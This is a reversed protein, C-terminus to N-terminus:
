ETVMETNEDAIQEYVADPTETYESEDVAPEDKGVYICKNEEDITVLSTPIYETKTLQKGDKDYKDIKNVVKRVLDETTYGGTLAKIGAEHGQIEANLQNIEEEMKHIKDILNNKKTVLPNVVMAIRKISTLSRYNLKTKM